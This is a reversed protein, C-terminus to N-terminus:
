EVNAWSWDYLWTLWFSVGLMIMATVIWARVWFMPNRLIPYKQFLKAMIKPDVREYRGSRDRVQDALIDLKYFTQIIGEAALFNLILTSWFPHALWAVALFFVSFSIGVLGTVTPGIPEQNDQWELGHVLVFIVLCIGVIGLLLPSMQSLSGFWVMIASFLPVGLYGAAYYWPLDQPPANLLGTVGSDNSFVRFGALIGRSALAAFAHGMEHIMTYFLELPYRIFPILSAVVALIAAAILIAEPDGNIQTLLDTQEM